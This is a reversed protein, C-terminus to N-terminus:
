DVFYEYVITIKEIAVDETGADLDATEWKSVWAEAITWTRVINGYKDQQSISITKRATDSSLNAKYLDQMFTSAFMGKELVIPETKERGPMKQIHKYGGESYEIVSQERILGSVKNFGMGSPVGPISVKFKFRQLPDNSFTRPM